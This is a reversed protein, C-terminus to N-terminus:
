YTLRYLISVGRGPQPMIEKTRALHDRYEADTLNDIRLSLAHVRPGRVLRVGLDLDGVAYGDTPTEFDGVREQRAAMRVGAGAFWPGREWRVGARAALPPILPPYPSAAVFTTDGPGIM